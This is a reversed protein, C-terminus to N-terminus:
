SFLILDIYWSKKGKWFIIAIVIQTCLPPWCVTPGCYFCKLSLIFLSSLYILESKRWYVHIFIYFSWISVLLLSLYSVTRSRSFSETLPFFIFVSLLLSSHCTYHNQNECFDIYVCQVCQCQNQSSQPLLILTLFLTKSSLTDFSSCQWGFLISLSSYRLCLSAHLHSFLLPHESLVLEM